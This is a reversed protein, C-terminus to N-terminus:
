DLQGAPKGLQAESPWRSRTICNDISCAWGGNMITYKAFVLARKLTRAAKTRKNMKSYNEWLTTVVHNFHEWLLMETSTM